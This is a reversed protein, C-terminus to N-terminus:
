RKGGRDDDPCGFSWGDEGSPAGAPQRRADAPMEAPSANEVSDTGGEEVSVPAAGQPASAGGNRSREAVDFIDLEKTGAHKRGVFYYALGGICPLLVCALMWRSKERQTPFDHYMAHKLAWMNPLAPLLLMIMQEGTLDSLLM